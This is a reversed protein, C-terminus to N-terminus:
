VKKNLIIQVEEPEVNLRYKKMIEGIEKEKKVIKELDKGTIKELKYKKIITKIDKIECMYKLIEGIASKAFQNNKYEQFLQTIEKDTINETNFNQRKLETITQELTNAILKPDFGQEVLNMFLKLNKSKIMKKALDKNLLKELTKETDELGKGKKEKIIKLREEKIIQPPIDTEPYMRAKGAIPRMFYTKDQEARRTELPVQDMKARELVKELAITAIKEPGAVLVFADEKKIDLTIKIQFIEEDNIKYKELKEDSHIIGKVGAMKAYQSLETGYRIGSLLETGLIDKHKELKIALIREGKKIATKLMNSETEEFIETVDAIPSDLKKVDIKKNIEKLLTALNKQREVENIILKPILNLEQAGKIEVRNGEPISINIDQRITGLGRQVKGTIRLIMGIKEAVEKAHEEDIIDPATAIEILPIGLRDLRFVSEDDKKEVIGASEEELCITEINVKGKSTEVFGGLSIIATRQFGSTNSGDIVQKRMFHIEDLINSNLALAVELVIDLAEKNLKLPPCEDIELECCSNPYFEYVNFKNKEKEFQATKDIESIESKVIHLKRKYKKNIEKGEISPCNCFLKHTNLRQHIEIGCKLKPKNKENTM